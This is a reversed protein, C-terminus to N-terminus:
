PLEAAGNAQGPLFCFGAAVLIVRGGQDPEGTRQWRARQQAVVHDAVQAQGCLFLKNVQQCTLFCYVLIFGDPAKGRRCGLFRSNVM